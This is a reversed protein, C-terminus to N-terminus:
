KLLNKVMNQRIINIFPLLKISPIFVNNTPWLMKIHKNKTKNKSGINGFIKIIFHRKNAKNTIKIKLKKPVIIKPSEPEYRNDKKM